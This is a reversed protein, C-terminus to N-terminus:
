RSPLRNLRTAGDISGPFEISLTLELKDEVLGSKRM